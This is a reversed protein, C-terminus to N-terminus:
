CWHLGAQLVEDLGWFGGLVGWSGQSEQSTPSLADVVMMGLLGVVSFWGAARTSLKLKPIISSQLVGSYDSSLSLLFSASGMARNRLEGERGSM